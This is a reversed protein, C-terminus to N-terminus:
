KKLKALLDVAEKQSEEFLNNSSLFNNFYDIAKNQESECIMYLKGLDLAADLDGANLAREFWYKAQLIDGQARYSVGLNYLSTLSGAKVAKLYWYIAKDFDYTVGEADEYMSAIRGMASEDGYGAAKLFLDLAERFNGKNYAQDAKFFLTNETM